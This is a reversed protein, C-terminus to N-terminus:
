VHRVFLKLHGFDRCWQFGRKQVFACMRANEKKIALYARDFGQSKVWAAFNRHDEDMDRLYGKKPPEEIHAQVFFLGDIVVKQLTKM